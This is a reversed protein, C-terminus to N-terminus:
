IVSVTPLDFSVAQMMDLDLSVKGFKRVPVFRANLRLAISPGFLFGRADLAVVVDIKTQKEQLHKTFVDLVTEVAM